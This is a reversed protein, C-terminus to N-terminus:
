TQMDNLSPFPNVEAASYAFHGFESELWGVWRVDLVLMESLKIEQGSSKEHIINDDRQKYSNMKGLKLLSYKTDTSSQRLYIKIHSEQELQRIHQKSAGTILIPQQTSPEDSVLPQLIECVRALIVFKRM